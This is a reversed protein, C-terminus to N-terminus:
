ANVKLELAEVRALLANYLEKPVYNDLDSVYAIKNAEEGSQGAEQVTVRTGAPTNLNMPLASSGYDVVNWRNVMALNVQTGNTSAGLIMDGNKLVIGKRDPLEPTPIDEVNPLKSIASTLDDMLAIEKTDNYTPRPTNGNLNIPLSSSGYDAVNWKSVMALNYATNDNSYGLLNAHNELAITKYEVGDRTFVSYSVKENELKNEVEKARETEVQVANSVEEPTVGHIQSIKTDLNTEALIARSIENEIQGGLNTEALTARAIENEIQGGLNTEALTARAIENTLEQEFSSVRNTANEVKNSMDDLQGEINNLKGDIVDFKENNSERDTIITNNIEQISQELKDNTAQISSALNDNVSDLDEQKAFMKSAFSLGDATTSLIESSDPNIKIQIAKQENIEIGNGATYSDVLGSLDVTLTNEEGETTNFVMTLIHTNEDYSVSKLIDSKPLNITSIAEGNKGILSLIGNEYDLNLTTSIVDNDITIIKDNEGVTITRAGTDLGEFSKSERFGYFALPNFTESM